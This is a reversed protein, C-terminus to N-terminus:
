KHLYTSYRIISKAKCFAHSTGSSGAIAKATIPSNVIDKGLSLAQIARAKIDAEKIRAM